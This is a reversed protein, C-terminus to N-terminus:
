PSLISREFEATPKLFGNESVDCVSNGHQWFLAPVCRSADMPLSYAQVDVLRGLDMPAAASTNRTINEIM